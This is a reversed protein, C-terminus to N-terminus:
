NQAIQILAVLTVFRSPITDVLQKAITDTDGRSRSFCIQSAMIETGLDVVWRYGRTEWVFTGHDLDQHTVTSNGGRAALYAATADWGSRVVGVAQSKYFAAHPLDSLHHPADHRMKPTWRMLALAVVDWTGSADVTPSKIAKHATTVTAEGLTPFRAALGLLNSAVNSDAPGDAADGYNFNHGSPTLYMQLAYDATDSVGSTEMYGYDHGMATVLTESTALLWKTTYVWYGPGEPWAGNGAPGYGSIALPIGEKAHAIAHKAVDAYRPVDALALAAFTTGGNCVVNWNMHVARIWWCSSCNGSSPIGPVWTCNYAYCRMSHSLGNRFLGDEITTRQADTLEHYFWDYGIAVGQMMEALTLFRIDGLETRQSWAEMKAAVMLEAVARQTLTKRQTSNFSIRYLLGLPYIDDQLSNLLDAGSPIPKTLIYDVRSSLNHLLERALPDGKDASTVARIQAVGASSLRLRPHMPWDIDM